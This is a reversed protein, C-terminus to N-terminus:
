RRHSTRGRKVAYMVKDAKGVLAEIDNGDDPFLSFGVSAGLPLENQEFVFRCAIRESIREGLQRAGEHGDVPALVLAFEDGGMRAVRDTERTGEAVRKAVERM